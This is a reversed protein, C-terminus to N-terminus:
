QLLSWLEPITSIHNGCIYHSTGGDAVTRLLITKWPRFYYGPETKDAPGDAWNDPLPTLDFVATTFDQIMNDTQRAVNRVMSLAKLYVEPGTVASGINLFVGGELEEITNAFVLFDTFSTRAAADNSNPHAAIIDAGVTVHVTCPIRANYAGALISLSPHACHTSLHKGVAEGAGLDAEVAMRLVDNLKSTEQWLGFQGLRIWKAVSESTGGVTALEFDHIMGAGNTALHTVWGQKMLSILYKSLGSKVVHGGIFAIVPRKASRSRRIASAVELMPQGHCNAAVRRPEPIESARIDHGREAIPRLIIRALDFRQFRSVDDGDSNLPPSISKAAALRYSETQSIDCRDVHFLPSGAM